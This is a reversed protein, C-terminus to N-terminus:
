GKVNNKMSDAKAKEIELRIRKKIANYKKKGKNKCKRSQEMLVLIDNTMWATEMDVWNSQSLRNRLLLDCKTNNKKRNKLMLRQQNHTNKELLLNHGSDGDAPYTKM